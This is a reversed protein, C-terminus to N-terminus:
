NSFYENIDVKNYIAKPLQFRVFSGNSENISNFENAKDEYLLEICFDIKNMLEAMTNASESIYGLENDGSAYYMDENIDYTYVFNM